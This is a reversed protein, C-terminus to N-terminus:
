SWLYVPRAAPAPRYPRRAPLRPGPRCGCAASGRQAPWCAATEPPPWPALRALQVPSPLGAAPHLMLLVALVADGEARWGQWLSSFFSPPSPPPPVPPFIKIGGERMRAAPPVHPRPGKAAHMPRLARAPVRAPRRGRATSRMPKKHADHMPVRARPLFFLPQQLTFLQVAVLVRACLQVDTERACRNRARM